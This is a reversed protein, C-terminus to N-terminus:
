SGQWSEQRGLFALDCFERRSLLVGGRFLMGLASINNRNTGNSWHGCRTMRDFARDFTRGNPRELTWRRGEFAVDTSSEDSPSFRFLFRREGCSSQYLTGGHGTSGGGGQYAGSDDYGGGEGAESALLTGYLLLAHFLAYGTGTALSCSLDNLQLQLANTEAHADAADPSSADSTGNAAHAGGGAHAADAHAAAVEAEHTEVSKRIAREVRFYMRVFLCRAVTQCIVGPIALALLTGVGEDVADDGDNDDGSRTVARGISSTILWVFSSAVAALLYAFAGGVALIVLQAKPAVIAFLLAFSPAFALLLSGLTLAPSTM